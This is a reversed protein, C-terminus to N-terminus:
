VLSGGMNAVNNNMSKTNKETMAGITVLTNLANEMRKNSDLLAQMTMDNGGAVTTPSNAGPSISLNELAKIVGGMATNEPVVAESGHLIAPTGTGFDRFGASGSRYPMESASFDDIMPGGEGKPLGFLGKGAEPLLFNEIMKFFKAMPGDKKVEDVPHVGFKSFM